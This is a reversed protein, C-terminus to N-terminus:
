FPRKRPSNTRSFQTALGAMAKLVPEKKPTNESFELDPRFFELGAEPLFSLTNSDVKFKTWFLLPFNVKLSGRKGPYLTKKVNENDFDRSKDAFM